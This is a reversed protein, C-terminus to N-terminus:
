YEGPLLITINSYAKANEDGNAIIYIDGDSTPYVALLDEYTRLHKSNILIDEACTKGWDLLMFKQLAEQVDRKADTSRSLWDQIGSTHYVPVNRFCPATYIKTNM